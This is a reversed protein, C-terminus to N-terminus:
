IRGIKYKRNTNIIFDHGYKKRLQYIATEVAHTEIDSTMGLGAKLNRMTINPNKYLLVILKRQLNSLAVDSGFIHNIIDVNDIRNLIINQLETISIPTDVNLEDFVIDAVNPSDVVIMGFDSFIQNWYKDSTYIRINEMMNM